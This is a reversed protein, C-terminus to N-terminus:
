MQKQFMQMWFSSWSLETMEAIIHLDNSLINVYVLKKKKKLDYNSSKGQFKYISEKNQSSTPVISLCLAQDTLLTLFNEMHQQVQDFPHQFTPLQQCHPIIECFM